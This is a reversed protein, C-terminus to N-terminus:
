SNEPSPTFWNPPLKDIGERRWSVNSRLVRAPLGVALSNPPIDRTVVSRAGIVSGSGIRVNKLIKCESTIWVHDGIEIYDARNLIAGTKTDYITHGDGCRLDSGFAVITDAGIRIRGARDTIAVQSERISSGAGMTFESNDETIWVFADIIRGGAGCIFRCNSGCLTLRLDELEFGDGFEVTNNSGFFTILSRRARCRAGLIRNNSGFDEVSFGLLANRVKFFPGSWASPRALAANDLRTILRDLLRM